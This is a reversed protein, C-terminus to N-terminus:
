MSGRAMASDFEQANKWEPNLGAQAYENSSLLMGQSPFPAYGMAGGRARRHKRSRKGHKRRKGGQTKRHRRTCKRRKGGKKAKKSRHRRRRGGNMDRLGAIDAYAKNLGALHAPGVLSGPLMEAGIASLPAEGGHQGEHYKFYDAGQNLSQSSPWSGALAYNLPAGDLAGGRKRRRNSKRSKPM